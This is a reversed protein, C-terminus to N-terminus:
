KVFIVTPHPALSEWDIVSNTDLHESVRSDRVM